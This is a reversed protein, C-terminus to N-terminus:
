SVVDDDHGGLLRSLGWASGTLCTAVGLMAWEVHSGLKDFVRPLHLLVVFSGMMLAHLTVALRAKVGSVLALGAAAHGAGTAYAWFLPFPIWAPVMSATFVAYVFHSLGFLIACAGFVVRVSLVWSARDRVHTAAFFAFGAAALAAIECFGLWMVVDAPQAMVRPGHLLLTWCTYIAAILLLGWTATRRILALCGALALVAASAYAFVTRMPLDKPVPQWQLAFDGFAIGVLGLAIAGIAYLLHIPRERVDRM